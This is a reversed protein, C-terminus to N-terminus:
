NKVVKKTATGQDSTINMLYMGSALDAVNVQINSADSYSIQKVVRGNLDTLSISKVSINDSNSLTIFDNAPNPSISFKSNLFDANKLAQTVSFTDIILGQTTANIPSNHLFSFYYVGATTPTFTYTKIAFSTSSIGTETGLTTTQSAATQANGVTLQYSASGTAGTGLYNRVYYSVTAEVNAALTIGRSYLRGSSVTTSNSLTIASVTGSQALTSGTGGDYLFWDETATAGTGTVSSSWGLFGLNTDELNTSYPTTSPEFVTNFNIPGTWVSYDSGGCFTRVYFSYVSSPALASLSVSTSTPNLIMGTNQTFGRLGYEFQYGTPTGSTPATWGIGATTTTPSATYTFGTPSFCTAATFTFQFSFGTSVWRNDWVIYYTTGSTVPFNTVRSRYDSTSNIDDNGDECTLASCTGSLISVRTDNASASNPSIGSDVTILGSSTPTFKYWIAKAAATAWCSGTAPYTGTIAPCVFTGNASITTANACTLQANIANSSIAILLFLLLKKM